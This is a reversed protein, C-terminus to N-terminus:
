LAWILALSQSFHFKRSAFKAEYPAVVSVLFCLSKVRLAKLKATVFLSSRALSESGCLLQHEKQSFERICLGFIAVEDM